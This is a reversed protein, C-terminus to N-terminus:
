LSQSDFCPFHEELDPKLIDLDGNSHCRNLFFFILQCDTLFAAALCIFVFSVWMGFVLLVSYRINEIEKLLQRYIIDATCWSLHCLFYLYDSCLIGCELHLHKGTLQKTPYQTQNRTIHSNTQIAHLHKGSLCLM